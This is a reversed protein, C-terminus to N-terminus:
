GQRRTKLEARFKQRDRPTYLPALRQATRIGDDRDYIDRWFSVDGNDDVTVTFYTIHVPIQEALGMWERDKQNINESVEGPSIAPDHRAIWRAMEEPNELRVCGSSFTRKAKEFLHASPTGHMYVAYQNPFIIKLNGLANQDGPQQVLRYRRASAPDTWDVHYPSVEKGSSREYVKYNNGPAYGADKQLKPMKDRRLISIPVNWKPSTVVFEVKDSFVPTQRDARGVITKMSIERQGNDWGEASFSPINAWVHRDGFYGHMRYRHMTDVIRDIKSEVSENMAAVTNPGVVGDAKLGHHKQFKKLAAVLLADMRDPTDAEAALGTGYGEIALRNRISPIRPDKQGERVIGGDRIAMWGGRSALARYKKLAQKLRNYQPHAPELKELAGYVDGEGAMLIAETLMARNPRDRRPEAAKGEDHLGGSAKQALRIFVASLGIDAQAAIAPNDSERDDLLLDIQSLVRDELVLGHMFADAAADYLDHATDETWIPQFVRQAYAARLSTLAGKGVDHQLEAEVLGDLVHKEIERRLPESAPKGVRKEVKTSGIPLPAQTGSVAVTHQASAPIAAFALVAAIAGASASAFLRKSQKRLNRVSNQHSITSM